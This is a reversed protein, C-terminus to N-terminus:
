INGVTLIYPTPAPNSDLNRLRSNIGLIMFETKVVNLSLKNKNLWQCLKFFAPLLPQKIEDVM